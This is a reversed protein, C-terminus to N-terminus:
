TLTTDTTTLINEHPFLSTHIVLTLVNYPSAWIQTKRKRRIEQSFCLDERM